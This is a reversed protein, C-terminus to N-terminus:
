DSIEPYPKFGYLKGNADEYEQLIMTYINNIDRYKFDVFSMDTKNKPAYRRAKKLVEEWSERTLDEIKDMQINWPYLFEMKRQEPGPSQHYKYDGRNLWGNLTFIDVHDHRFKDMIETVQENDVIEELVQIDWPVLWVSFPWKGNDICYKLWKKEQAKWESRTMLMELGQTDMIGYYLQAPGGYDRILELMRNRGSNKFEYEEWGLLTANWYAWPAMKLEHIGATNVVKGTHGALLEPMMYAFRMVTSRPWNIFIM